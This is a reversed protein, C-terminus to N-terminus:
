CVLGIGLTCNASVLLHVGVRCNIWRLLGSPLCVSIIKADNQLSQSLISLKNTYGNIHLSFFDNQLLKCESQIKGKYMFYCNENEVCWAISLGSSDCGLMMKTDFREDFLGIRFQYKGGFEGVTSIKFNLRVSDMIIQTLYSFQLMDPFAHIVYSIQGDFSHCTALYKNNAFFEWGCDFEKSGNIGVLSIIENCVFYPVYIQLLKYLEDQYNFLTHDSLGCSQM